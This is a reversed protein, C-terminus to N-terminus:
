SQRLNKKRRVSLNDLQLRCLLISADVDYSSGTIVRVARNQLKQLKTTLTDGLEDWVSCCYNFHPQILKINIDASYIVPWRRDISALILANFTGKNEQSYKEAM